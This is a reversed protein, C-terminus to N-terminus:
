NGLPMKKERVKYYEYMFCGAKSDVVKRVQEHLGVLQDEELLPRKGKCISVIAEELSIVM